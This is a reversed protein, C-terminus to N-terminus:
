SEFRDLLMYSWSTNVFLCTNKLNFSLAVYVLCKMGLDRDSAHHKRIESIRM